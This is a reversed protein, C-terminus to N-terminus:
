TKELLEPNEHINGIIECSDGQESTRFYDDPWDFHCFGGGSIQKGSFSTGMYVVEYIGSGQWVSIHKVVDGKYIEVGNKDKLGIFQDKSRHTPADLMPKTQGFDHWYHLDMVEGGFEDIHVLAHVEYGVIKGDRILRFKIERM